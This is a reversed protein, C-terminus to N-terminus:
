EPKPLPADASPQRVASAYFGRQRPELLEAIRGMMATTAATKAARRDAAPPVM